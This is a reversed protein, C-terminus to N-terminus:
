ENAGTHGGFDHHSNMPFALEFVRAVRETQLFRPMRLKEVFLADQASRRGVHWALILKANSEIGVSCYADGLLDTEYPAAKPVTPDPPDGSV